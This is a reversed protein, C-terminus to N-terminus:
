DLFGATSEPAVKLELEEIQMEFRAVEQIQADSIPPNDFRFKRTARFPVKRTAKKDPVGM